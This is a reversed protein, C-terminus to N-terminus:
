AAGPSLITERLGSAFEPDVRGHLLIAFSDACAFVCSAFHRFDFAFPPGTQRAFSWCINVHETSTSNRRMGPRAAPTGPCSFEVRRDAASIARFFPWSACATSRTAGNPGAALGIFAGAPSIRYGLGCRLPPRPPMRAPAIKEVCIRSGSANRAPRVGDKRQFRQVGFGLTRRLTALCATTGQTRM